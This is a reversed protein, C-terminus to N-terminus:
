WQFEIQPYNSIIFPKHDFSYNVSGRRKSERKEGMRVSIM